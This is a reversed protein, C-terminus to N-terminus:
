PRKRRMSRSSTSVAEHAMSASHRATCPLRRAQTHCPNQFPRAKAVMSFAKTVRARTPATMTIRSSGRPGTAAQLIAMPQSTVFRQPTSVAMAVATMTQTGTYVTPNRWGPSQNKGYSAIM